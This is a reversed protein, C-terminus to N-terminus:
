AGKKKAQQRHYSELATKRHRKRFQEDAYWRVSQKRNVREKNERAWQLQQAANHSKRCQQCRDRKVVPMGCDICTRQPYNITKSIFQQSMGYREALECQTYNGSAYLTRIEQRQEITLRM